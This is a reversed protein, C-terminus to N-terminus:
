SAGSLASTLSDYRAQARVLEADARRARTAATVQATVGSFCQRGATAASEYASSLLHTLADDPTPLQQNASLADTVLV